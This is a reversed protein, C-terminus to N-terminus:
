QEEDKGPVIEILDALGRMVGPLREPKAHRPKYGNM